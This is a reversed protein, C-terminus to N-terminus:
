FRRITARMLVLLFPTYYYRELGGWSHYQAVLASLSKYNQPKRNIFDRVALELISQKGPVEDYFEKSFIYYDDVMVPKIYPLPEGTTIDTFGPLAPSAIANSLKMQRPPVTKLTTLSLGKFQHNFMHDVVREADKPYVINVIGSYYVGELMAQREFTDAGILGVREVMFKCMMKDRRKVVDWITNADMVEDGDCNLIRYRVIDHTDWSSFFKKIGKMLFHDYTANAQGPVILTMFENSGYSKLYQELMGRRTHELEKIIAFDEPEVLPNQGYTLFDRVFVLTDVTKHELDGMLEDTAYNILIYEIYHVGEKYLSRKDSVTVQYIGERGDGVDATFMDGVNPIVFPYVHSSGTQQSQKSESIQAYTIPNTVRLEMNLIKIYQEHVADRSYRQGSVGQDAGRIGRYYNVIWPAGEINTLLSSEPVYKTDVVNSRFNPKTITIAPPKPPEPPKNPENLVPM